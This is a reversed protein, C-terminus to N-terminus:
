IINTTTTTSFLVLFRALDTNNANRIITINFPFKGMTIIRITVFHAHSHLCLVLATFKKQVCTYKHLVSKPFIMVSELFYMLEIVTSPEFRSYNIPHLFDGEFMENSPSKKCMHAPINGSMNFLSWTITDLIHLCPSCPGRNFHASNFRIKTQSKSRTGFIWFFPYQPFLM